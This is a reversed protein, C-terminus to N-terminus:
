DPDEFALEREDDRGVALLHASQHGCLVGPRVFHLAVDVLGKDQLEFRDASFLLKVECQVLAFLTQQTHNLCALFHQIRSFVCDYVSAHRLVLLEVIRTVLLFTVLQHHVM